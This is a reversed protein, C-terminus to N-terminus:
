GIQRREHAPNDNRDISYLSYSWWPTVLAVGGAILGALLVLQLFKREEM